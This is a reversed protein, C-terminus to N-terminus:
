GLQYVYEDIEQRWASAFSSETRVKVFGNRELVRQSGTNHAAARAWLPRERDVTLLLRLAETAIGKGWTSRDLWYSVEREGEIVFSCVTGVPVGASEILLYRVEPNARIRAIWADFAQRDLPDDVVFAAMRSSIADKMWEFILDDDTPQLPRLCMHEIAAPQRGRPKEVPTRGAPPRAATDGRRLGAEKM